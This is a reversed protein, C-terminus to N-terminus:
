SRSWRGGTGHLSVDSYANTTLSIVSFYLTNVYNCLAPNRGYQKASVIINM